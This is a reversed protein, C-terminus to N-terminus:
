IVELGVVLAVTRVTAFRSTHQCYGPFPKLRMNRKVLLSATNWSSFVTSSSDSLIQFQKAVKDDFSGESVCITVVVRLCYMYVITWQEKVWPHKFDVNLFILVVQVLNGSSNVQLDCWVQTHCVGLNQSFWEGWNTSLYRTATGM